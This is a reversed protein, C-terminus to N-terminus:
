TTSSVPRNMAAISVTADPVEARDAPCTREFVHVAEFREAMRRGCRQLSIAASRGVALAIALAM